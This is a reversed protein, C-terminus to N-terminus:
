SRYIDRAVLVAFGLLLPALGYGADILPTRGIGAYGAYAFVADTVALTTACAIVFWWPWAVRGSGLKRVLLGLTIAPMLLVFVDLVPYLTNFIRTVLPQTETPAFIVYPGIVTAYVLAMLALSLAGAIILPRRIDLLHRYAAVGSFLGAAFFGYGALTFIDAASPYPDKGTILYLAIFIVNGLGVALMGYGFCMWQSRISGKAFSRAVWIVVAAVPLPILTLVGLVLTGLDVVGSWSVYDLGVGVLFAILVLIGVRRTNSSLVRKRVAVAATATGEPGGSLESNETM